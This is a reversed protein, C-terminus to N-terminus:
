GEVLWSRSSLKISMSRRASLWDTSSTDFYVANSLSIFSSILPFSLLKCSSSIGTPINIKVQDVYICMNTQIKINYSFNHLSSMLESLIQRSYYGGKLLQQM